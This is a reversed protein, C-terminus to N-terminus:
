LIDQLLRGDQTCLDISCNFSHRLGWGKNWACPGLQLGPRRIRVQKPLMFTPQLGEQRQLVPTNVRRNGGSGLDRRGRKSLRGSRGVLRSRGSAARSGSEKESVALRLLVASWFMSDCTGLGPGVPLVARRCVLIEVVPIQRWIVRCKRPGMMMEDRGVAGQKPKGAERAGGHSPRVMRERFDFSM